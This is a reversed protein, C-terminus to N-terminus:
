LVDENRFWIKFPPESIRMVASSRPRACRTILLRIAFKEVAHRAEQLAALRRTRIPCCKQKVLRSLEFTTTRWFTSCLANRAEKPFLM